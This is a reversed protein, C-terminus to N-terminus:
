KHHLLSGFQIKSNRVSFLVADKQLSENSSSRKPLTMVGEKSNSYLVNYHMESDENISVAVFNSRRFNRAVQPRRDGFRKM